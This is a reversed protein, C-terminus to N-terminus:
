TDMLPLGVDSTTVVPLIVMGRIFRKPYLGTKAPATSAAAEEPAEMKGGIM